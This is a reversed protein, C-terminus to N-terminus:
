TLLKEAVKGMHEMYTCSQQGNNPTKREADVARKRVRRAEAVFLSQSLFCRGRGETLLIEHKSEEHTALSGLQFVFVYGRGTEPASHFPQSLPALRTSILLSNQRKPHYSREELALM